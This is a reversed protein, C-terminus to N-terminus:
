PWEVMKLGFKFVVCEAPKDLLLMEDRVIKDDEM